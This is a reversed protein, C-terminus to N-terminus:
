IGTSPYSCALRVTVPWLFALGFALLFKQTM